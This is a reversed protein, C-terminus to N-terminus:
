GSIDAGDKYMEIAHTLAKERSLYRGGDYLSDPTVNLIGMILTKRFDM